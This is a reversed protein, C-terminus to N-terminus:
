TAMYFLQKKVRIEQQKSGKTSKIYDNELPDYLAKEYFSKSLYYGQFSKQIKQYQKRDLYQSESIIRAKRPLIVIENKGKFPSIIFQM